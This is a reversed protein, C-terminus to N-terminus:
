RPVIQELETGAAYAYSVNRDFGDVLVGIKQDSEITHVGDDQRGDSLLQAAGQSPDIVPFSLQCRTVTFETQDETALTMRLGEPDLNSCETWEELPRQDIVIQADPPAIIRLFDFAYFAPTLFVYNDRFQEVPPLILFSPDGGPLSRPVGAAEQSPSINGLMVPESSRLLFDRTTKIERTDGLGQLTFERMSGSLSTTIRAGAESTAIVRFIEPASVVGIGGGANKVALSRNFSVPAVFTRGATRRHDLQEELHDACCKRQTLDEFHPADSAESGSFVAVPGNAEILTGTLDANFDDTELNLVDFPDLTMELVGGASTEPIDPSGLVRATPAIRVQTQSRTGVITLFARLSPPGSGGAAIFNTLPDDTAAITQPWGLVVYALRLGSGDDILAEVPKLLSADNSFVNVNDLPNFQYAVVPVSTTIRYAARTLASHTGTNYEGPGSGDVERPGLPFVHLGRPGVQETVLEIPDNDQGPQTDDLEVTVYVGVDPHPNSVVVAFQQAAGNVDPGVNANDLDVAWYECGVNSRRSAAQNCLNQCAGGRCALGAQENCENRLLWEGGDEACVKPANEECAREDPECVACAQLSTSCVLGREACDDVVRWDLGGDGDACEELRETNCFVIGETCRAEVAEEKIWRHGRDFECSASGNLLSITVLPAGLWSRTLRNFRPAREPIPM